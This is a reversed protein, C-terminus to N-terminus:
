VPLASSSWISLAETPTGGTLGEHRLSPFFFYVTSVQKHSERTQGQERVARGLGGVERMTVSVVAM